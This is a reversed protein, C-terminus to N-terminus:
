DVRISSVIQIIGIEDFKISAKGWLSGFLTKIGEFIPPVTHIVDFIVFFLAISEKQHSALPGTINSPEM